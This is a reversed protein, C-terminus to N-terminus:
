VSFAGDVSSVTGIDSGEIVINAGVLPKDESSITGSISQGMLFIPTFVVVLWSLLNRKNM